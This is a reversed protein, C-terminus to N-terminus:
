PMVVNGAYQTDSVQGTAPDQGFVYVHLIAGSPVNALPVTSQGTLKSFDDEIGIVLNEQEHLILTQGLDEEDLDGAQPPTFTLELDSGNIVPAQLGLFGMREGRSFRIAPYNVSIVGNATASVEPMNLQTFVNYESKRIALASFGKRIVRLASSGLQALTRMRFRQIRQAPSRPNSVVSAKSRVVPITKWSAYTLEGISKRVRRSHLGNHIAM